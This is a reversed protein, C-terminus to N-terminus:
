VIDPVPGPFEGRDFVFVAVVVAVVVVVGVVCDCGDDICPLPLPLAIPDFGLPSTFCLKNGM